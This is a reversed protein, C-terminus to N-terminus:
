QSAVRWAPPWAPIAFSRRMRKPALRSPTRRSVSCSSNFSSSSSVLRPWLNLGRIAGGDSGLGHFADGCEVNDFTFDM